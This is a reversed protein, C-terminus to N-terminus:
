FIGHCGRPKRSIDILRHPTRAEIRKDSQVEWQQCAADCSSKNTFRKRSLRVGAGEAAKARTEIVAVHRNEHGVIEEPSDCDEAYFVTLDLTVVPRAFCWCRRASKCDCKAGGEGLTCGLAGPRCIKAIEVWKKPTYTVARLGLPDTATLPNSNAYIYLGGKLIQNYIPDPRSYNGTGPSFWRHLNYLVESGLSADAWAEDTWQGPFRLDIEAAEAGSWDGGFPEFGGQWLIAGSIDTAMIPTGLHDSTLWRWTESGSPTRDLQAIPRGAFSFYYRTVEGAQGPDKTVAHLIGETSYTPLTEPFLSCKAFGPGHDGDVVASWCGLDGTELGDHFITKVPGAASFCNAALFWM